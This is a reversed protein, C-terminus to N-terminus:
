RNIFTLKYVCLLNIVLSINIYSPLIIFRLITLRLIHIFLYAILIRKLECSQNLTSQLEKTRSSMSRTVCLRFPKGGTKDAQKMAQMREQYTAVVRM